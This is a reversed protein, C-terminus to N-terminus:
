PKPAEQQQDPPPPPPPTAAGQEPARDDQQPAAGPDVPKAPMNDRPANNDQPAEEEKGGLGKPLAAGKEGKTEEQNAARDYMTALAFRAQVQYAGLRTKQDDLEHIALQALYSTQKEQTAALRAQLAAIRDKLAAVRAAFEGNDNPVSKRARDVRIWRSQAERLAVDLDKIARHQQWMRAKFSDNLRFYLVGKVLRLRERLEANEPTDPAGQLAAELRQIRAWQEREEDSGLASVDGDKEINNVRTELDTRRQQLKDVAGSALLADVKPTREVYAAERTDIM